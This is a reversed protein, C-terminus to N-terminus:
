KIAEIITTGGYYLIAEIITTGGYYLIAANVTIAAPIWWWNRDDLRV